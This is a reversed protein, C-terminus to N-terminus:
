EYIEFTYSKLFEVDEILKEIKKLLHPPWNIFKRTHTESKFIVNACSDIYHKSFEIDLFNWLRVLERNPDKVFSSYHVDIVAPGLKKRLSVNIQM